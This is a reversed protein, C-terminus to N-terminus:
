KSKKIIATRALAKAKSLTRMLDVVFPSPLHEERGIRNNRKEIAKDCINNEEHESLSSDMTTRLVRWVVM